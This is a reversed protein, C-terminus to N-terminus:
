PPFRCSGTFNILFTKSCSFLEFLAYFNVIEDANQWPSKNSGECCYFFGDFKVSIFECYCYRGVVMMSLTTSYFVRFHERRSIRTSSMWTSSPLTSHSFMLLHCIHTKGLARHRWKRKAFASLPNFSSKACACCNLRLVFMLIEHQWSGTSPLYNLFKLRIERESAPNLCYM